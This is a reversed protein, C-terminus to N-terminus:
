MQGKAKDKFGAFRDTVGYTATFNYGNGESKGKPYYTGTLKDNKISALIESQFIPLKMKVSDGKVMVEKVVIKEGANTIEITSKGNQLLLINSISHCIQVM